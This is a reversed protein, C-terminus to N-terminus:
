AGVVEAIWKTSDLDYALRDKDTVGAVNVDALDALTLAALTTDLDTIQAVGIDLDALDTIQATTVELNALDTIQSLTITEGAAIGMAGDFEVIVETDAALAARKAYGIAPDSASKSAKGGTINYRVIEGPAFALNDDAAKTVAAKEAKVVVTGAANAPIDAFGVFGNLSGGLTSAAVFVGKKIEASPAYEVESYTRSVLKISM